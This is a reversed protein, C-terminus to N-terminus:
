RRAGPGRPSAAAAALAPKATDARARRVDAPGLTVFHADTTAGMSPLGHLMTTRALLASPRDSADGAELAGLIALADHGDVEHVDWGFSRWKDVLPEITTVTAIPGDVQSGNCDVIATLRRLRHHAAFMAAEWTQGEQMEGDSAFVFTRRDEGARADALALGTGVSLGQGLAGCTASVLPTKETAISELWGGDAGYTALAREDLLGAEVAAAYHAIAYHGPSLVFRDIGHRLVTRYLVSFLEASSTAQGLYGMGAIAVMEVAHRRIALGTAALAELNRTPPLPGPGAIEPPAPRVAGRLVAPRDGTL